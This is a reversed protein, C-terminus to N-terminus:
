PELVWVEAEGLHDQLSRVARGVAPDSGDWVVIAEEAQRALWGDRRAIAGAAAQRSAPQNHQVTVVSAARALLKAFRQRSPDPWIRDPDPFPLVAVFPVDAAVAAEAGLQEAGLGLGTLVLLEPHLQRKAALIRGLQERVADATPNDGYGGLAPPRLAPSSSGTAPRFAPPRSPPRRSPPPRPASGQGGAGRRDAPGLHEPRDVGQRGAQIAAAEVALRDVLDNMPDSGHGKVWRFTLRHPDGRYADILPEWLDRNAM